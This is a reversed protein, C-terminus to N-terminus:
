ARVPPKRDIWPAAREIQGALSLLLDDEGVRGTVMVGVPLGDASMHLPLSMSPQGSMNAYGCFNASQALTGMYDAVDENMMDLHGLPAPQRGMTPCVYVDYNQHFAAMQRGLAHIMRIAKPYATSPLAKANMAMLYPINEVDGEEFPKGLHECRMEFALLASTGIIAVQAESIAQADIQPAAEEVTHGLEELLKVANEVAAVCEPDTPAGNPATTNFAVKLPLPDTSVAQLYSGGFYPAAYPAGPEPGHTADLLAANDRVTWSVAHSISCGGWGEGQTPGQPTRARTPKLGFLGTCSAPIRISGGGDSANAAPIIGAAVASSAGGSSGGPTHDLNWPNRSPGHLRPETSPTLGMEPSNTQGFIVMGARRYRNVLESTQDAIYDKFLNSGNTTRRGEWYLNLDKLLFPVGKLPGDPLGAEIDARAEDYWKNAVANIKPNVTETRAIAEDLLEQPSVEGAAVAAAMGVADMEDYTTM